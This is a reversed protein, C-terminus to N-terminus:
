TIAVLMDMWSIHKSILTSAGEWEPEWQQGLYISYDVSSKVTEISTYGALKLGIASSFQVSKKVINYRLPSLNRLDIVGIVSTQCILACLGTNIWGLTLRILFNSYFPFSWFVSLQDM